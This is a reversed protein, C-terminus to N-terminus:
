PTMLTQQLNQKFTTKITLLPKFQSDRKATEVKTRLSSNSKWTEQPYTHTSYRECSSIMKLITKISSVSVNRGKAM